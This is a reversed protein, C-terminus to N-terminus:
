EGESLIDISSVLKELLAPSRFSQCLVTYGARLRRSCTLTATIFTWAELYSDKGGLSEDFGTLHDNAFIGYFSLIETQEIFNRIKDVKWSLECLYVGWNISKM